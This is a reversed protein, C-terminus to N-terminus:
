TACANNKTRVAPTFKAKARIARKAKEGSKCTLPRPAPPPYSVVRGTKRMRNEKKIKSRAGAKGNRNCRLLACCIRVLINHIGLDSFISYRFGSNDPGPPTNLEVASNPIFSGKEKFECTQFASPAITEFHKFPDFNIRFSRFLFIVRGSVKLIRSTTNM